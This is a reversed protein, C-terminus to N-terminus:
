YNSSPQVIPNVLLLQKGAFGPSSSYVDLSSACMGNHGIQFMRWQNNSLQKYDDKMGPFAEDIAAEMTFFQQFNDEIGYYYWDFNVPNWDDGLGNVVHHSLNSNSLLASRSSHVFSEYPPFSRDDVAVLSGTSLGHYTLCRAATAVTLSVAQKVKYWTMMVNGGWDFNSCRGPTILDVQVGNTDKDVVQGAQLSQHPNPTLIREQQWQIIASMADDLQVITWRKLDKRSPLSLTYM